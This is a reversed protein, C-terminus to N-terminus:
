SLTRIHDEQSFHTIEFGDGNGHCGCFGSMQDKRGQMCQASGVGNISDNINKRWVTYESAESCAARDIHAVTGTISLM